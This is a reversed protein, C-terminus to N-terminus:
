YKSNWTRYEEISKPWALIGGLVKCTKLAGEQNLLNPILKFYTIKSSAFSCLEKIEREQHDGVINTKRIHDSWILLNPKPKPQGCSKTIKMMDDRSLLKSWINLESLDGKFHVGYSYTTQSSPSGMDLENLYTNEYHKLTINGISWMRGDFVVQYMDKSVAICIHHWHYPKIGNDKPIEFYIGNKNLLM